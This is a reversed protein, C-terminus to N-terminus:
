QCHYGEGTECAVGSFAAGSAAGGSLAKESKSDQFKIFDARCKEFQWAAGSIIKFFNVDASQLISKMQKRYSEETLDGRSTKLCARYRKCNLQEEPVMEKTLDWHSFRTNLCWSRQSRCHQRSHERFAEDMASMWFGNTGIIEGEHKGSPWIKVQSCSSSPLKKVMTVSPASCGWLMLLVPVALYCGNFKM